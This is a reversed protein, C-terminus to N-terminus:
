RSRTGCAGCDGLAVAKVVAFDLVNQQDADVSQM